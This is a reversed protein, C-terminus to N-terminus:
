LAALHSLNMGSGNKCMGYYRSAFDFLREYPEPVPDCLVADVRRPWIAGCSFQKKASWWRHMKVVRVAVDDSFSAPEYRLQIMVDQGDLSWRASSLGVSAGSHNTFQQLSSLLDADGRDTM